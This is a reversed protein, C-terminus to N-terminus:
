PAERESVDAGLPTLMLLEAPDIEDAEEASWRAIRALLPDQKDPGPPGISPIPRLVTVRADVVGEVALAVSQVEAESVGRGFEQAEFAFRGALAERVAALVVEAERRGDLLVSLALEFPLKRFSGARVEVGPDGSERLAGLLKERTQADVDAAGPAAVTVHVIRREGLWLEDARAKAIGAFARAFDEYDGLAVVRDLTTVTLPANSRASDRQEPDEAGAAPLPNTVERIGPPRTQLLTLRGAGVMGASGIGSRYRARVNEIGSPPRAGREGDGFVVQTGGDDERRLAYVEDAPGHGHLGREGKWLVGDVRVELTSEAGGASAAAVHTLPPKRLAFRQHPAGDGSGLAEEVTEGHTAEVVNANLTMTSRRYSHELGDFHVTTRGGAHTVDTLRVVEAWRVRGLDADEGGVAVPQGAELGLVLRDLTLEDIGSAGGQVKEPLPLEALELRESECHVTTTRLGFDTLDVEEGALDVLDLHTVKGSIAYDVRSSESAEAVRLVRPSGSVNRDHVVVWSGPVVRQFVAELDLGSPYREVSEAQSNSTTVDVGEESTDDWDRVWGDDELAEGRKPANHGFVGAAQRTAYVGPAAAPLEVTPPASGAYGYIAGLSWGQVDLFAAMKANSWESGLFYDVENKAFSVDELYVIGVPYGSTVPSPPPLPDDAFDIRTRELEAEVVVRRVRKGKPSGTIPGAGTGQALVLWDGGELQTATGALYITDPDAGLVQPTTLQPRMANREARALLETGTEFTQPLQGEAPLSQIRTREPVLAKPPETSIPADDGREEVQFALWAHAAVGPALEYGILRALELLSRRERATRLFGENAIREQYFSLVDAVLAYADFLAIAPDDPERTTLRALRGLTETAAAEEGASGPSLKLPTSDAVLVWPDVPAAGSEAALPIGAEDLRAILRALVEPYTAVRYEIQDLGPRNWITPRAPLPSFCGCTGPTAASM